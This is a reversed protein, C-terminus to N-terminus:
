MVHYHAAEWGLIAKKRAAGWHYEGFAGVKRIVRHCPILYGIPNHAIAGAVAREAGPRGIHAAVDEYAVVTGVPIKLLAQWVKIQFNTGKLIVPLTPSDKAPHFIQEVLPQTQTSDETFNAKPWNAKLENLATERGGEAVFVLGCIGRETVALLCEGFPTPHFGYSINLGEAQKKFEGPTM